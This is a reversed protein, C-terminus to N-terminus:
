TGAKLPMATELSSSHLGDTPFVNLFTQFMDFIVSLETNICKEM